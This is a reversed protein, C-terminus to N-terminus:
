TIRKKLLVASGLVFIILTSPEPVNVTFSNSNGLYSGPTFGLPEKIYAGNQIYSYQTDLNLVFTYDGVTGGWKFAYRAMIDDTALPEPVGGLPNDEFSYSNGSPTKIIVGYSNGYVWYSVENVVLKSNNVDFTLTGPGSVSITAGFGTANIANADVVFDFSFIEGGTAPLVMNSPTIVVSVVCQAQVSFILCGITFVAIATKNVQM